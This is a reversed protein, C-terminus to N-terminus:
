ERVIWSTARLSAAGSAGLGTVELLVMKQTDGRQHAYALSTLVCLRVGKRVPVTARAGLPNARIQRECDRATRTTATVQSAGEAGPGLALSATAGGCTSAYRLDNHEDDVDARPVDLDVFLAASCGVHFTLPARDYGVAFSVGPEPSASAGETPGGLLDPGGIDASPDDVSPNDASPDAGSPDGAPDGFPDGTPDPDASPVAAPLPHASLASDARDLAQWSLVGSAGAAVLALVALVVAFAVGARGTRRTGAVGGPPPLRQTADDDLDAGSRYLGDAPGPREPFGPVPSSTASV